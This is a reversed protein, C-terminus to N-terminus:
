RQLGYKEFVVQFLGQNNIFASIRRHELKKVNLESSSVEELKGRFAEDNERKEEFAPGHYIGREVGVNLPLRKLDDLSTIVVNSDKRVM